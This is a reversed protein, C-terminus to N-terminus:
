NDDFNFLFSDAGLYIEDNGTDYFYVKPDESGGYGNLVFSNEFIPQPEADKDTKDQHIINVELESVNRLGNWLLICQNGQASFHRDWGIRSYNNKDLPFSADTYQEKTITLTGNYKSNIQNNYFTFYKLLTVPPAAPRISIHFRGKVKVYKKKENNLWPEFVGYANTDSYGIVSTDCTLYLPNTFKDNNNAGSVYDTGFRRHKFSALNGAYNQNFCDVHLFVSNDPTSNTYKAVKNEYLEADNRQYNFIKNYQSLIYENYPINTFM